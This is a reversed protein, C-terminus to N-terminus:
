FKDLAMFADNIVRRHFERINEFNTGNMANFRQMFDSNYNNSTQQMMSEHNNLTSPLNCEDMVQPGDMLSETQLEQLMGERTLNNMRIRNIQRQYQARALIDSVDEEQRTTSINRTTHESLTNGHNGNFSSSSRSKVHLSDNSDNIRENEYSRSANFVDNNLTPMPMMTGSNAPSPNMMMFMHNAQHPFPYNLTMTPIAAQQQQQLKDNKSNGNVAIRQKKSHTKNEEQRQQRKRYKQTSRCMEVSTGSCAMLAAGSYDGMRFCPHVYCVSKPEKKKEARSRRTKVFGWRYLKRQFSDYKAVKFFSPLVQKTFEDINHVIFHHEEHETDIKWNVIDTYKGCELVYM